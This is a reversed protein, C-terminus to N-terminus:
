SKKKTPVSTLQEYQNELKEYQGQAIKTSQQAEILECKLEKALGTLFQEAHYVSEFQSNISFHKLFNVASPVELEKLQHAIGLIKNKAEHYAENLVVMEVYWHIYNPIRNELENLKQDKVIRLKKQTYEHIIAKEIKDQIVRIKEYWKEPEKAISKLRSELIEEAEKIDESNETKFLEILNKNINKEDMMQLYFHLM